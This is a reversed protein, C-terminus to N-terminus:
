RICSYVSGTCSSEFYWSVLLAVICCAKIWQPQISTWHPQATHIIQHTRVQNLTATCHVKDLAATYQALAAPSLTGVLQCHLQVVHKSGNHSYVLGTHNHLTFSGTHVCRIRHPQVSLWCPQVIYQDMTAKCVQNMIVTWNAPDLTCVQNLPLICIWQPWIYQDCCSLPWYLIEGSKKFFITNFFFIEPCHCINFLLSCVQDSCQM